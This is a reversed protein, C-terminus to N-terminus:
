IGLKLLKVEFNFHIFLDIILICLLVLLNLVEQM